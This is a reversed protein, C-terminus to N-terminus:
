WLRSPSRTAKARIRASVRSVENLGLTRRLMAFRAVPSYRTPTQPLLDTCPGVHAMATWVECWVTRISRLSECDVQRIFGNAGTQLLRNYAM